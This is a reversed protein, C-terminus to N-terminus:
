VILIGYHNTIPFVFQTKLLSMDLKWILVNKKPEAFSSNKNLFSTYFVDSFISWELPFVGCFQTLLGIYSVM